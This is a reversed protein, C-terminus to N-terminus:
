SNSDSSDLLTRLKEALDIFEMTDKKNIKVGNDLEKIIGACIRFFYDSNAVDSHKIEGGSMALAGVLSEDRIEARKTLDKVDFTFPTEKSSISRAVALLNKYLAQKQLSIEEILGQFKERAELLRGLVVPDVKLFEAKQVRKAAEALLKEAAELKLLTDREFDSHPSKSSELANSKSEGEM